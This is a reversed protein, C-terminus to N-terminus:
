RFIGPKSPQTIDAGPPRTPSKSTNCARRLSSRLSSYRCPAKISPNGLVRWWTQNVRGHWKRDLTQPITCLSFASFNQTTNPTQRRHRQTHTHTHTHSHALSHSHTHLICIRCDLFVIAELFHFGAYTANKCISWSFIISYWLFYICVSCALHTSSM